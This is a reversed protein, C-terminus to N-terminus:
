GLDIATPQLLDNAVFEGTGTPVADTVSAEQVYIGGCVCSLDGEFAPDESTLEQDIGMLEQSVADTYDEGFISSLVSVDWFTSYDSIYDPLSSNDEAFLEGLLTEWAPDGLTEDYGDIGDAGFLDSDSIDLPMIDGWYLELALNEGTELDILGTECEFVYDDSFDSPQMYLDMAAAQTSSMLRSGSAPAVESAIANSDSVLNTGKASAQGVLNNSINTDPANVEGENPMSITELSMLPLPERSSDISPISLDSTRRKLGVEVDFNPSNSSNLDSFGEFALVM